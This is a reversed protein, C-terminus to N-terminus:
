RNTHAICAFEAAGKVLLVGQNLSVEIDKLNLGPFAVEVHM